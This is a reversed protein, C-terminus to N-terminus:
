RIKLNDYSIKGEKIQKRIVDSVESQESIDKLIINKKDGSILNIQINRSEIPFLYFESRDKKFFAGIALGQQTKKSFQQDFM